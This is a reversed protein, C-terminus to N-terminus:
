RVALGLYRNGSRSRSLVPRKTKQPKAPSDVPALRWVAVTVPILAALLVVLLTPLGILPAAVAAAKGVLSAM